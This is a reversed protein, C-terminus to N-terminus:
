RSERCRLARTEAAKEVARALEGPPQQSKKVVADLWAEVERCRADQFRPSSAFPRGHRDLAVDLLSRSVAVDFASSSADAGKRQPRRRTAVAAELERADDDSFLSYVRRRPCEDFKVRWSSYGGLVFPVVTDDYADRWTTDVEDAGAVTKTEAATETEASAVRTRKAISGSGGRRRKAKSAVERTSAVDGRSLDRRPASSSLSADRSVGPLASTDPRDFRRPATASTSACRTTETEPAHSSMAPTTDVSVPEKAVLRPRSTISVQTDGVALFAAPFAFRRIPIRARTELSHLRVFDVHRV